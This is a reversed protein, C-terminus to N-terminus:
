QLTRLGFFARERDIAAAFQRRLASGVHHASAACADSFRRRLARTLERTSTAGAVTSPLKAKAHDDLRRALEFCSKLDKARPEDGGGRARRLGVGVLGIAGDFGLFVDRDDFGGMACAGEEPGQAALFECAEAVAYLAAAALEVSIESSSETLQRLTRGMRHPRVVYPIGDDLGAGSIPVLHRHKLSSVLALDAMLEGNPGALPTGALADLLDLEVVGGSQEPLALVVEGFATRRVIPGLRYPGISGSRFDAEDVGARPISWDDVHLEAELSVPEV